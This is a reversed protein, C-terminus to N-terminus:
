DLKTPVAMLYDETYSKEVGNEEFFWDFTNDSSNHKKIIEFKTDEIMDEKEGMVMLKGDNDSFHKKNLKNRSKLDPMVIKWVDNIENAISGFEDSNYELCKTGAVKMLGDCAAQTAGPAGSSTKCSKCFFKKSM